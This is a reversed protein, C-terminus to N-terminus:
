DGFDQRTHGVLNGASLGRGGLTNERHEGPSSIIMADSQFFGWCNQSRNQAARSSLLVNGILKPTAHQVSFFYNTHSFFNPNKTPHQYSKQKSM